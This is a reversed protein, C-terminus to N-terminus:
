STESTSPSVLDVTYLWSPCVPGESTSLTKTPVPRFFLVCGKYRLCDPLGRVRRSSLVESLRITPFDRGFCNRLGGERTPRDHVCVLFLWRWYGRLKRCTIYDSSTPSLRFLGLPKKDKGGEIFHIIKKTNTLQNNEPTHKTLTKIITRERKFLERKM